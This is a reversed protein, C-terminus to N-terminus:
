VIPFIQLAKKNLGKPNEKLTQEEFCPLFYELQPFKLTKNKKRKEFFLKQTLNVGSLKCSIGLHYLKQVINYDM